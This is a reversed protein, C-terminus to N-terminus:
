LRSGAVRSVLWTLCIFALSLSMWTIVLRPIKYRLRRSWRLRRRFSIMTGALGEGKRERTGVVEWVPQAQSDLEQEYLFDLPKLLHDLAETVPEPGGRRSSGNVDAARAEDLRPM